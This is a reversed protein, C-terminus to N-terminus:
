LITKLFPLGKVHWEKIMLRIEDMRVLEWTSLKNTDDIEMDKVDGRVIEHEHENVGDVDRKCKPVSPVVHSNEM